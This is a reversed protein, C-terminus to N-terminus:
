RRSADRSPAAMLEHYLHILEDTAQQWTHVRARATQGFRARLEDDDVLRALSGALAVPDAPPVLIGTVGDLVVEPIGGVRSAVVSKGAAAAELNITGLGEPIVSPCCVIDAALLPESMAAAPIGGLWHVPLGAAKRRLEDEYISPAERRLTDVSRWHNSSGAVLLAPRRDEPLLALAALLHHLGKEPAVQGAFLVVVRDPALGLRQRLRRGSSPEAYRWPDAGNRIVHVARGHCPHGRSFEEALFASACVVADVRKLLRREWMTAGGPAMHLHLIRLGARPAALLSPLAHVHLVDAVPLAAMRSALALQYRVDIRGLRAWKWPQVGRITVGGLQYTAATAAGNRLGWLEARAGAGVAGGAFALAAGVLGSVSDRQLSRPLMGVAPLLHRILLPAIAM